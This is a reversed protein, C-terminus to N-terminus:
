SSECKVKPDFFHICYGEDPCVEIYDGYDGHRIEPEASLLSALLERFQALEDIRFTIVFRPETGHTIAIDLGAVNFESWSGDEHKPTGFLLSYLERTKGPDSVSCHVNEVAIIHKLIESQLQQQHQMSRAREM